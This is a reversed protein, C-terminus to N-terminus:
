KVGELNTVFLPQWNITKKLKHKKRQKYMVTLLKMEDIKADKELKLIGNKSPKGAIFRLFNMLILICIWHTITLLILFEIQGRQM